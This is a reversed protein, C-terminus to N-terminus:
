LGSDIVRCIVQGAYFVSGAGPVITTAGVRECLGQEHVLVSYNSIVYYNVVASANAAGLLWITAIAYTYLHKVLKLLSLTFVEQVWVAGWVCGPLHM